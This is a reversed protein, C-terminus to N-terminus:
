PCGTWEAGHRVAGWFQNGEQKSFLGMTRALVSRGKGFGKVDGWILNAVVGEMFSEVIVQPVLYHGIDNKLYFL